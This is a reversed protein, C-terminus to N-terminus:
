PTRGVGRNKRKKRKEKKAHSNEKQTKPSM